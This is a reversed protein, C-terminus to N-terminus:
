SPVFTTRSHDLSSVTIFSEVPGPYGGTPRDTKDTQYLVCFNNYFEVWMKVYRYGDERVLKDLNDMCYDLTHRTMLERLKFANDVKITVESLVGLM